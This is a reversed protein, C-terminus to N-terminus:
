SGLTVEDSTPVTRLKHINEISKRTHVPKVITRSVLQEQGPLV